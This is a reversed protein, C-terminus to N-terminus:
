EIRNVLNMLILKLNKLEQTKSRWDQNEFQNLWLNKILIRSNRIGLNQKQILNLNRIKIWFGGLGLSRRFFGIENKL